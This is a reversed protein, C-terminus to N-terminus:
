GRRFRRRHATRIPVRDVVRARGFHQMQTSLKGGGLGLEFALRRLGYHEGRRGLGGQRGRLRHADIEREVAGCESRRLGLDGRQKREQTSVDPM